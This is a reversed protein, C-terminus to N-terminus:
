RRGIDDTNGGSDPEEVSGEGGYNKIYDSNLVYLRRRKSTWIRRVRKYVGKSREAPQLIYSIRFIVKTVSKSKVKNPIKLEIVYCSFIFTFV